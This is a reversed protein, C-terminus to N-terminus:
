VWITTITTESRPNAEDRTSLWRLMYHAAKGGDAAMFEAVAPTRHDTVPLAARGAAETRESM